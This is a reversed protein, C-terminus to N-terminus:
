ANRKERNAERYAKQYYSVADGEKSRRRTKM